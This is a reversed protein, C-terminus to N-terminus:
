LDLSIEEKVSKEPQPKENVITKANASVAKEVEILGSLIEAKIEYNVESHTQWDEGDMEAQFIPSPLGNVTEFVTLSQKDESLNVQIQHAKLESNFHDLDGKYNSIVGVIALDIDPTSDIVTEPVEIERNAETETRAEATIDTEIETRVPVESKSGNAVVEVETKAETEVVMNESNSQPAQSNSELSAKIAELNKEIKILEELMKDLTKEIADLKDDLSANSKLLKDIATEEPESKSQTQPEPQSSNPSIPAAQSRLESEPVATEVEDKDSIVSNNESNNFNEGLRDMELNVSARKDNVLKVQEAIHKLRAEQIGAPIGNIFSGIINLTDGYLQIPNVEGKAMDKLAKGINKHLNGATQLNQNTNKILQATKPNHIPQPNTKPEQSAYPNKNVSTAPVQNPPVPNPPAPVQHNQLPVQNPPVPNPPAPVQHNPPVLSQAILQAKSTTWNNLSSTGGPASQVPITQSPKPMSTPVQHNQAPVQYNQVIPPVIGLNAAIRASVVDPRLYTLQETTAKTGQPLSDKVLFYSTSTETGITATIEPVPIAQGRIKQNKTEFNIPAYNNQTSHHDSIRQATAVYVEPSYLGAQQCQQVAAELISKACSINRPDQIRNTQNKSKSKTYTM